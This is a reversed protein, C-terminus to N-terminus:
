TGRGGYDQAQNKVADKQRDDSANEGEAYM